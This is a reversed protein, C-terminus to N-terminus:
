FERRFFYVNMFGKVYFFFSLSIIQGARDEKAFAHNKNFNITVILKKEKEYIDIFSIISMVLACVIGTVCVRM